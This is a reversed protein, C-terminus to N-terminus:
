PNLKLSLRPTAWLSLRKSQSCSITPEIGVVGVATEQNKNSEM